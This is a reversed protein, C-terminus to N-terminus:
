ANGRWSNLLYALQMSIDRKLNKESLFIDVEFASLNNKKLFVNLLRESIFGYVREQYKDSYQIVNSNKYQFLIDFLWECYQNFVEDKAIFMNYPYTYRSNMVYKLSDKYEPYKNIIITKINQLDVYNHHKKYHKEVTSLLWYKKPVIIDYKDLIYKAQEIDLLRHDLTYFRRYHCIGKVSSKDNKWIWYLATLECFSSNLNAINDGTGDSIGGDKALVEKNPGVFFPVYGLPLESQMDFKKHSVVYITM